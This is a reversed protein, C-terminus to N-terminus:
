EVAQISVIKERPVVLTSTRLGRTVRMIAWDDLVRLETVDKIPSAIGGPGDATFIVEVDFKGRCIVLGQDSPGTVSQARSPAGSLWIAAAGALALSGLTFLSRRNM